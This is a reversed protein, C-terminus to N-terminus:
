ENIWVRADEENEFIQIEWASGDGVIEYMRTLGRMVIENSIAAVKINPNKKSQETDM